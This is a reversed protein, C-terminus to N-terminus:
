SSELMRELTEHYLVLHKFDMEGNEISLEHIRDIEEPSEV